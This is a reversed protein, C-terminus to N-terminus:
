FRHACDGGGVLIFPRGMRALGVPRGVRRVEWVTLVTEVGPIPLNPQCVKLKTVLTAREGALWTRVM